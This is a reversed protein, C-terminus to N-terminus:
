VMGAIRRRQRRNAQPRSSPWHPPSAAPPHVVPCGQTPCLFCWSAVCCPLGCTRASASMPLRAVCQFLDVLLKVLDHRNIETQVNELFSQVFEMLTLGRGHELYVRRFESYVSTLAPGELLLMADM